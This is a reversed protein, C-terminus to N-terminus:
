DDDSVELGSRVKVIKLIARHTTTAYDKAHKTDSADLGELFGAVYSLMNEAIKLSEIKSEDSPEYYKFAM